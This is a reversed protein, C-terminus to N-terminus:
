THKRLILFKDIIKDVLKELIIRKFISKGSGKNKVFEKSVAM